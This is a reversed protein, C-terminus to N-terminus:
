GPTRKTASRARRAAAATPVPDGAITTATAGATRMTRKAAPERAATRTKNRAVLKGALYIRANALTPSSAFLAATEPKWRPENLLLRELNAFHPTTALAVAGKHGIRNHGAEFSTLNGLAACAALALAGADGLSNRELRLRRLAPLALADCLAAIGPAGLQCKELDLDRLKALSPSSVLTAIDRAGFKTGALALVELEALAPGGLVDALAAPDIANHSLVLERLRWAGTAISHVGATTIRNSDLDLREVNALHPSTALARAGTDDLVLLDATADFLVAQDGWVSGAIRLERLERLTSAGAVAQALLNGGGPLALELARLRALSPSDLVDDLRPPAIRAGTFGDGIVRLRRLLPAAVFLEETRRLSELTITAEEVFGRVFTFSYNVYGRPVPLLDHLPQTWTAAHEALLRNEAIKISRRRDDDPVAALQCQLQILEGRPDGHSQLWDAYVLRPADDDPAEIIADLLRREEDSM